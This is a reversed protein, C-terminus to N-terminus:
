DEDMCMSTRPYVWVSDCVGVSGCLRLGERGLLRVEWECVYVLVSLLTMYGVGWVFVYVCVRRVCGRGGVCLICESCECIIVRGMSM